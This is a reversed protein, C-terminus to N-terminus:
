TSFDWSGSGQYVLTNPLMPELTELLTLHISCLPHLTMHDSKHETFLAPCPANPCAHGTYIHLCFNSSVEIFLMICKWNDVLIDPLEPCFEECSESSALNRSVKTEFSWFQLAICKQQQVWETPRQLEVSAIALWHARLELCKGMEASGRKVFPVSLLHEKDNTLILITLFGPWEETPFQVIKHELCNLSILVQFSPLYVLPSSVPLYSM